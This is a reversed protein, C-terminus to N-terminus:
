PHTPRTDAHPAEWGNIEPHYECGDDPAHRDPVFMDGCKSCDNRWGLIGAWRPRDYRHVCAERRAADEARRRAMRQARTEYTSPDTM